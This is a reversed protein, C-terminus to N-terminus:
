QSKGMHEVKLGLVESKLDTTFIFFSFLAIKPFHLDFACHSDKMGNEMTVADIQM